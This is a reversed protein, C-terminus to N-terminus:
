ELFMPLGLVSDLKPRYQDVDYYRDVNVKRTGVSSLSELVYKGGQVAVMHGSEGRGALDAAIRAFSTAVMRDLTDPPGARMLYGLNQYVIGSGTRNKIFDGVQRGIGGLKQHGYADAAGGQVIEGGIPHAGESVTLVAYNSPNDARDQALLGIVRELDFPVESILARDVSALLASVLSTEGSNRGFLEVVLYREHSGAPTRLATIMDVPLNSQSRGSVQVPAMSRDGHPVPVDARIATICAFPSSDNSSSNRWSPIKPVM